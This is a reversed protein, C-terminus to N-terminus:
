TGRRAVELRTAAVLLARDRTWLKAGGLLASALLHADVWGIGSGWLRQMEVFGMVEDHDLVGVRPLTGLLELITQRNSLHGCALEGIVFPHTMVQEGLLLRVLTKNGSRLHDVWMSTDVLIM